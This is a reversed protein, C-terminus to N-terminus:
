LNGIHDTLPPLMTRGCLGREELIVKLAALGQGLTRGKLYRACIIDTQTQLREVDAWRNAMAADFMARYLEPALHGGSPVLGVGGHKLGHTFQSSNGLLVPFGDRGGCVRLLETIRAPDAASDKIAVINPHKRLRGIADLSISQHATAPINYLVLPRPVQDALKSFYPEIQQDTLPYYCPPHAVFANAGIEAYIRAAEISEQLCNSAIGAYVTARKGAARVAGSVLKQKEQPHISAAEGTTGLPFIGHVGGAVLHNVIREVAAEDIRGDKTFPSVM